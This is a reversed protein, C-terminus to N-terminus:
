TASRNLANWVVMTGLNLHEAIVKYAYGYRRLDRMRDLDGHSYSACASDAGRKPHSAWRGKMMCDRKNDLHTGLFLHDPNVCSPNDCKHLVLLGDAVPGVFAIYSLRHAPHGTGQYSMRGYGARNTGATWHWCDTLGFCIRSLLRSMLPQKSHQRGPERKVSFIRRIIRSEAHHDNRGQADVLDRLDSPSMASQM